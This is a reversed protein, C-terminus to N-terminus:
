TTNAINPTRVPTRSGFWAAARSHPIHFIDTERVDAPVTADAGLNAAWTFTADDFRDLQPSIPTVPRPPTDAHTDLAATAVEEDEVSTLTGKKANRIHM